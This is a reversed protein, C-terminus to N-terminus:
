CNEIDVLYVIGNRFHRLQDAFQIDIEAFGLNRM